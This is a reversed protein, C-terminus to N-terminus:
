RYPQFWGLSDISSGQPMYEAGVWGNYDLSDILSFVDDFDIDGTGPQGRGPSDAFQIHAIRDIHQELLAMMNKEMQFMHYIDFQLKVNDCGVSDLINLTDKIKSLFIDPMDNSNLPELSLVIDKDKVIDSAYCVNDVLTDIYSSRLAGEVLRSPGIHIVPCSIASAMSVILEFKERFEEERGPVASLGPGGALFDGIPANCLVIDIEAKKAAMVLEPISVDEPSLIEVASFGAKKAADFREVLPYERFMFTINANFKPM